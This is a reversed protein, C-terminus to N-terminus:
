TNYRIVIANCTRFIRATTMCTRRQHERFHGPAPNNTLIDYCLM